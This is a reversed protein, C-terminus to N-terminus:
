RNLLMEKGKEVVKAINKETAPSKGKPLGLDYLGIHGFDKYGALELTKKACNQPCGDLALIYEAANAIDLLAGARGGIGAICTMKGAGEASLKRAARDTIEGVDSSGSCAYIVKPAQSCGCSCEGTADNAKNKEM